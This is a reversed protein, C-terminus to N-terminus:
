MWGFGYSALYVGVVIVVLAEPLYWKKEHFAKVSRELSADKMFMALVGKVLASWGIFTVLASPLSSWDNHINIVLLGVIIDVMAIILRSGKDEVFSGLASMFYRKRALLAVGGIIMYTGFVKALLVTLMM